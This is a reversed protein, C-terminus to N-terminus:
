FDSGLNGFGKYFQRKERECFHNSKILNWFCGYFVMFKFFNVRRNVCHIYLYKYFNCCQCFLLFHSRLEREVGFIREEM